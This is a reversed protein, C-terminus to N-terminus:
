VWHGCTRHMENEKSKQKSLRVRQARLMHIENAMARLERDTRKRVSLLKEQSMLKTKLAHLEKEVLKLKKESNARKSSDHQETKMSRLM